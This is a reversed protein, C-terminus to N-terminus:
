AAPDDLEREEQPRLLQERQEAQGGAELGLGSRPLAENLGAFALLALLDESAARLTVVRGLRRAALQVRALADVTGMDADVVAGLDCVLVAAGSAELVSRVRACLAPVDAPAIADGLALVITRPVPVAM